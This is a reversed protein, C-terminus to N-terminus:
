AEPEGREELIAVHQANIAAKSGPFAVWSLANFFDHWNDPRTEVEGTDAIHLEYYRRERDTHGRPAIFRLPKDRSTTIGTALATLEAHVPWRDAPLRDLLPALPAFAPNRLANRATTWQM